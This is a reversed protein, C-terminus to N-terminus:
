ELFPGPRKYADRTWVRKPSASFYYIKLALGFLVPVSEYGLDLVKLVPALIFKLVLDFLGQAM